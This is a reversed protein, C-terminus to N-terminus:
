QLTMCKDTVGDQRVAVALHGPTHAADTKKKFRKQGTWTEILTGDVTFHEDSLLRHAKAHALVQEFFATAVRGGGRPGPEQHLRDGEGGARGSRPRCM